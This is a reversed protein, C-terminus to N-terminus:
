NVPEEKNTNILIVTNNDDESFRVIEYQSDQIALKIDEIAKNFLDKFYTM